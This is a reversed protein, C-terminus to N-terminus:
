EFSILFSWLKYGMERSFTLFYKELGYNKNKLFKSLLILRISKTKNTRKTVSRAAPLLQIRAPRIKRGM